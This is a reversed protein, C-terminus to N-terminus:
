EKKHHTTRMQQQLSLKSVTKGKELKNVMNKRNDQSPQAKAQKKLVKVKQEHRKVELKLTDNEKGIGEDCSEVIVQEINL